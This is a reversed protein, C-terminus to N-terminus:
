ENGMYVISNIYGTDFIYYSGACGFDQLIIESKSIVERDPQQPASNTERSRGDAYQKRQIMLLVTVVRLM